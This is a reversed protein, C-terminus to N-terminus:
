EEHAESEMMLKKAAEFRRMTEESPKCEEFYKRCEEKSNFTLVPLPRPKILM